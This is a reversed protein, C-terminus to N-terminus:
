KMTSLGPELWSFVVNSIEPFQSAILTLLPIGVMSLIKTFFDADL